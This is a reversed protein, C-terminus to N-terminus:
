STYILYIDFHQDEESVKAVYPKYLYGSYKLGTHLSSKGSAAGLLVGADLHMQFQAAGLVFLERWAEQLLIMQDRYPLGVFAPLNKVWKINMLLLRAAFESTAEPSVRSLHSAPVLELPAPIQSLYVNNRDASCWQLFSQISLICTM